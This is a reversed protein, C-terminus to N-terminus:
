LMVTIRRLCKEKVCFCPAGVGQKQRKNKTEKKYNKINQMAFADRRGCANRSIKAKLSEKFFGATTIKRSIEFKQFGSFL